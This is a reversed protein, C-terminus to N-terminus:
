EKNLYSGTYAFHFVPLACNNRFDISSSFEDDKAYRINCTLCVGQVNYVYHCVAAELM